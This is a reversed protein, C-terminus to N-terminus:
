FVLGLIALINKKTPRKLDWLRYFDNATFWWSFPSGSNSASKLRIATNEITNSKAIHQSTLSRMTIAVFGNWEHSNESEHNRDRAVARNSALESARESMKSSSLVSWSQHNKKECRFSGNVIEIANLSYEDISWVSFTRRKITIIWKEKVNM